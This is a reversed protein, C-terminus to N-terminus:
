RLDYIVRSAVINFNELLQALKNVDYFCQFHM